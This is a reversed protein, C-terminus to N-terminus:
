RNTRSHHRHLAPPKSDVELRWVQRYPYYNLLSELDGTERAWVVPSHDIDAANYVWEQHYSHTPEYHVIVLHQGGAQELEQQIRAREHQWGQLRSAGWPILCAIGLAVYAILILQVGMHGVFYKDRKWHAIRRLGAAVLFALLCIAPALYHPLFWSAQLGVCWLGGFSLAAFLQWPRHTISGVFFPVLLLWGVYYRLPSSLRNLTLVGLGQWTRSHMWDEPEFEDHFRQQLESAYQKNQDIAAPTQWLFIPVQSYQELYERYPLKSWEGTVRTNYHAMVLATPFLVMGTGSLLVCWSYPIAFPRLVVYRWALAILMFISAVLGELPRSNALIALGLGMIFSQLWTPREWLRRGAGFLLAGGLAAVAGGWYGYAWQQSGYAALLRVTMLLAGILAWRPPLWAQLMWCTAGCFLAFSVWVGVVPHGLTQGAALFLGQAPPYKGTYTPKQLVHFTDFFEALPHPPNTLRGHAFTDGQLLYAFEDHIAPVPAGRGLTISAAGALALATVIAVSLWRRRALRGFWRQRPRETAASTLAVVVIALLIGPEFYHWLNHLM